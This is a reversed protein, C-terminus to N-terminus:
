LAVSTARQADLEREARQERGRGDDEDGNREQAGALCGRGFRRVVVRQDGGLLAIAHKGLELLELEVVPGALDGVLVVARENLREPPPRCPRELVARRQWVPRRFL